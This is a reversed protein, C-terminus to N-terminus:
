RVNEVVMEWLDRGKGQLLVVAARAVISWLKEADRARTTM